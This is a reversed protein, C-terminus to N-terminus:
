RAALALALAALAVVGMPHASDERNIQQIDHAHVFRGLSAWKSRTKGMDAPM